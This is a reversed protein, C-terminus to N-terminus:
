RTGLNNFLRGFTGAGTYGARPENYVAAAVQAATPFAVALSYGTKDANTGVTVRGTTATIALDAFNAPFAQTLAYGTKDANVGVYSDVRGSQLVNPQEGRWYYVDVQPIGDVAAAVNEGLWQAVDAQVLGNINVGGMVTGTVNAVTTHDISFGGVVRGVSSVGLVTGATLQLTCEQGAAYGATNVTVHHKGVTGGYDPTLTIGTSVGTTNTGCFAQVAPSGALTVLSGGGDATNFDCNVVDGATYNALQECDGAMACAAYLVLAVGILTRTLKRM